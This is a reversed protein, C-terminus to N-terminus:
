NGYCAHIEACYDVKMREKDRLAWVEDKNILSCILKRFVATDSEKQSEIYSDIEIKLTRSIKVDPFSVSLHYSGSINDENLLPIEMLDNKTGFLKLCNLSLDM